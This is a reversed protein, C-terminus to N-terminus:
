AVNLGEQEMKSGPHKALPDMHIYGLPYPFIHSSFHTPMALSQSYCLHGPMFNSTHLIYIETSFSCLSYSTLDTSFLLAYLLLLPSSLFLWLIFYPFFCQLFFASTDFHPLYTLFYPM